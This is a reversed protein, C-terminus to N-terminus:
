VTSISLGDKRLVADKNMKCDPNFCLFATLIVIVGLIFGLVWNLIGTYLFQLIILLLMILFLVLLTLRRTATPGNTPDERHPDHHSQSDVNVSTKPIQSTTQLKPDELRNMLSGENPLTCILGGFVFTSARCVPCPILWAGAENHILLKLCVICFAHKCSLQKPLRYIDYKSFCIACDMDTLSSFCRDAISPHLDTPTPVPCRTDVHDEALEEGPSWLCTRCARSETSSHGTGASGMITSCHESGPEVEASPSHETSDTM